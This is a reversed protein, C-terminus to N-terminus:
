YKNKFNDKWLAVEEKNQFCCSTLSYEKKEQENLRDDQFSPQVFMICDIIHIVGNVATLDEKIIVM